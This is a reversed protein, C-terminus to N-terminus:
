PAPYLREFVKRDDEGLRGVAALARADHGRAEDVRGALALARAACGHATARDFSMVEEALQACLALCAEAYRVAEGARGAAAYATSLLCLARQHNLPTGAHLWHYCAAHAAHVMREAEDPTRADREVLDWALNNLEVAFWRHAKALDFPPEAM